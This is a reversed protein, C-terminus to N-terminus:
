RGSAATVRPERDFYGLRNMAAVLKRALPAAVDGGGGAHELAVVFVYRPSEAPAYGAFWAHDQEGVAVEATGTKGAVEVGLGRFAREATGARDAVARRLGERVVALTRPRLAVTPTSINSASDALLRPRVLRGEDALAAMMRAIQLPTATMTGQGIAMAETDSTRWPRGRQERVARPTALNGTAESPLDLGSRQGFGFRAAWGVLPQPGLRSAHHYFYVNCSQALADALTLPGHGVGYRRFLYCRQANPQRLYGRCVLPAEPDFDDSELLAVAVLPKFVSGPPLAMDLARHFLVRNPDSLARRRPEGATFWFAGGRVFDNPDFRPASACAALEGSAVDMVLISGGGFNGVAPESPSHIRSSRRRAQVDDLLQEAFSQLAVDITLRVDGGPVPARMARKSLLDGAADRRHVELGPRGRLRAEHAHEIGTVGVPADLVAQDATEDSVVEDSVFDERSDAAASAPGLYGVIHAAVDGRPYNRVPVREIEVGPFQAPHQEIREAVAPSPALAIVHSTVEERLVIRPPPLEDPPAFMRVVADVLVGGWSSDAPGRDVDRAARQDAYRRQRQRNVREAMRTIRDEIRTRRALWEEPAVQCLEALRRHMEAHEVRLRNVEAALTRSASRRSIAATAASSRERLRRRALRRLWREDPTHRLYRYDVAVALVVDDEALPTGARSLIRGRPAAQHAVESRVRTAVARFDDGEFIELFLCRGFVAIMLLVIMAGLGRIRLRPETLVPVSRATVAGHWDFLRDFRPM